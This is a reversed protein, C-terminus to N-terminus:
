EKEKKINENRQECAGLKTKTRQSSGLPVSNWPWLWRNGSGTERQVSENGDTNTGTFTRM